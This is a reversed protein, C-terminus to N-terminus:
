RPQAPALALTRRVGAWGAARVPVREQCLCYVFRTIYFLPPQRNCKFTYFVFIFCLLFVPINNNIHNHLTIVDAESRKTGVEEKAGLRARPLLAALRVNTGLPQPQPALSRPRRQQHPHAM